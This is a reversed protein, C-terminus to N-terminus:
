ESHDQNRRTALIVSVDDDTRSGVQDSSLFRQLSESLHFVEAPRDSQLLPRFMGNFFPDHMTYLLLSWVM